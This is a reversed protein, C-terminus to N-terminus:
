RGETYYEGSFHMTVAPKGTFTFSRFVTNVNLSNINVTISDPFGAAPTQTVAVESTTLGPVVAAGTGEANGYVVMNKVATSFNTNRTDLTTRSAYAAGSTVASELLDYIYMSYGYQVVGSLLSFLLAFGVAFELMSNGREGRSSYGSHLKM